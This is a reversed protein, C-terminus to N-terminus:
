NENDDDKKKFCLYSCYGNKEEKEMLLKEKCDPIYCNKNSHTTELNYIDKKMNSNIYGIRNDPEPIGWGAKRYVSISPEPSQRKSFNKEYETFNNLKIVQNGRIYKNGLNYNKCNKNYNNYNNNYNNYNNNYNNYDNNYYSNNYDNYNSRKENNSSVLSIDNNITRSRKSSSYNEEKISNLSLDYKGLTNKGKISKKKTINKIEEFFKQKNIKKIGNNYNLLSSSLQNIFKEKDRFKKTLKIIYKITPIDQENESKENAVSYKEYLSYKELILYGIEMKKENEDECKQYESFNKFDKLIQSLISKAKQSLVDLNNVFSQLNEIKANKNLNSTYLSKMINLKINFEVAIKIFDLIIVFDKSFRSFMNKLKDYNVLFPMAQNLEEKTLYITSVGSIYHLYVKISDLTLNKQIEEWPPDNISNIKESICTIIIYFIKMLHYIGDSPNNIRLINQLINSTIKEGQTILTQKLSNIEYYLLDYEQFSNEAKETIQILKTKKEINEKKIQELFENLKKIETELLLNM